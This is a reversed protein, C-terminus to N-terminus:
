EIEISQTKNELANIRDDLSKFDNTHEEKSIYGGDIEGLLSSTIQERFTKSDNLLEKVAKRTESKNNDKIIVYSAISFIIFIIGIVTFLTNYFSVVNNTYESPTLLLGTRELKKLTEITEITFPELENSYNLIYIGKYDYIGFFLSVLAILLIITIAGLAGGIVYEKKMIIM